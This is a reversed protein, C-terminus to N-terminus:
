RPQTGFANRILVFGTPSQYGIWIYRDRRDTRRMELTRRQTKRGAWVKVIRFEVGNVEITEGVKPIEIAVTRAM